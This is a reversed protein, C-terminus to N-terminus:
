RDPPPLEPLRWQREHQRMWDLVAQGEEPLRGNGALCDMVLQSLGVHRAGDVIRARELQSPDAPRLLAVDAGRDAPLLGGNQRIRDPDSTYLVLQAPAAVPAVAVAAYSGTVVTGPATGEKLRTHLAAAGGPAVFLKTTNSKFLDYHEAGARLLAPWDVGEVLGRRDREILAQDDLAELLRSIYGQTLGSTHALDTLRYPPVVDVLLRVLRRAKPGQLGAPPRRPPPNPDRDSGQLKIYVAPRNVKFLVNGTLDIYSYGREELVRRSRPSLWPAV